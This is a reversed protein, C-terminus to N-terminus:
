WLYREDYPIEYKRLFELYEEQFTKKRHHEEQREIYRSVEQLHSRSVTFAGYGEQWKFKSIRIEEHVWSSSSKKRDRLVDSIRHTAKLGILLHVHHIFGGVKLAKGDLSRVVGGMYQHLRSQWQKEIFPYRDKTSFILHYHLSTHTAPM